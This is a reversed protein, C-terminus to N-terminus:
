LLKSFKTKKSGFMFFKLNKNQKNISVEAINLRSSKIDVLIIRQYM